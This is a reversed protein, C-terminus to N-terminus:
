SPEMGAERLLREVDRRLAPLKTEVVDWVLRDDVDAYGHTLINRFAVIRRHEGIRAALGRDLKALQATAEGVIEFQREVASRLMADHEYDAFAKGATFNTLLEVARWIDFLYKQAEPKM